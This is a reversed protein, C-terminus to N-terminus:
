SRPVESGSFVLRPLTGPRLDPTMPWFPAGTTSQLQGTSVILQYIRPILSNTHRTRISSIQTSHTQSSLLVAGGLEGNGEWEM